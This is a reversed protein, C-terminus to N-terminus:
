RDRRESSLSGILAERRRVFEAVKQSEEARRAGEFRRDVWRRSFPLDPLYIWGLTYCTIGAILGLLHASLFGLGLTLLGLTAHQPSKFFEGRYKPASEDM